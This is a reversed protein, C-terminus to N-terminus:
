NYLAFQKQQKEGAFFNCINKAADNYNQIPNKALSLRLLLQTLSLTPDTNISKGFGMDNLKESVLDLRNEQRLSLKILEDYTDQMAERTQDVQRQVQSMVESLQAPSASSIQIAWLDMNIRQRPLDFSTILRKLAARGSPNGYIEITNPSGLNSSIARGCRAPKPKERDEEPNLDVLNVIQQIDSAEAFNLRVTEITGISGDPCKPFHSGDPSAAHAVPMLQAALSSCLSLRLIRKAKYRNYIM